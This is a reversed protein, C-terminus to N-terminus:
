NKQMFNIKPTCLEGLFQEFFEVFIKANKIRKLIRANNNGQKASGRHAPVRRSTVLPVVTSSCYQLCHSLGPLLLVGPSPEVGELTSKATARATQGQLM